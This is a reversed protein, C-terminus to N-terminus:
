KANLAALRAIDINQGAVKQTTVGRKDKTGSPLNRVNQILFTGGAFRFATPSIGLERAIINLAMQNDTNEKYLVFHLYRCIEGKSDIDLIAFRFQSRNLKQKQKRTKSEEVRESVCFEAEM